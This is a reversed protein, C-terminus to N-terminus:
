APVDAKHKKRSEQITAWDHEFDEATYTEVQREKLFADLDWRSSIGLLTRLQYASIRRQRYAELGLAELAAHSPNQGPALTSALEDPIELTIQMYQTYCL